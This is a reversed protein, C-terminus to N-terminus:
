NACTCLYSDWALNLLLFHKINCKYKWESTLRERFGKFLAIRESIIHVTDERNSDRKEAKLRFITKFLFIVIHKTCVNQFWEDRSRGTMQEDFFTANKRIRHWTLEKVTKIIFQEWSAKTQLTLGRLGGLGLKWTNGRSNTETIASLNLM